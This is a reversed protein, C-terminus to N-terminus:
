KALVLMSRQVGRLLGGLSTREMPARQARVILMGRTNEHHWCPCLAVHLSQTPGQTINASCPLADNKSAIVALPQDIWDTRQLQQNFTSNSM